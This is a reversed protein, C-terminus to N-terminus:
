MGWKPPLTSFFTKKWIRKNLFRYVGIAIFAPFETNGAKQRIVSDIDAHIDPEGVVSDTYLRCDDKGNWDIGWPINEPAFFIEYTKKDLVSDLITWRKNLFANVMCHNYPSNALHYLNGVLPKIFKRHVQITVFQAQIHNCRLLAILLTSKGWCIGYGKKLIDSAKVKYLDYGTVINDRVHYFTKKAIEVPDNTKEALKKALKQIEPHAYDCYYTEKLTTKM